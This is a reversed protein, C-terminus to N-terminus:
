PSAVELPTLPQESLPSMFVLKVSLTPFAEEMLIPSSSAEGLLRRAGLTAGFFGSSFGSSPLLFFGTRKM